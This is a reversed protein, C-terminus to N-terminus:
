RAVNPLLHDGTRIRAGRGCSTGRSMASLSKARLAPSTRFTRSRSQRVVDPRRAGTSGSRSQPTDHPSEAIADVERRGQTLELQNPPEPTM